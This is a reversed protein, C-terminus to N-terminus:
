WGARGTVAKWAGAPANAVAPADLAPLAVLLPVGQVYGMTTALSRHGVAARVSNPDAGAALAQVIRCRRFDHSKVVVPLGRSARRLIERVSSRAPPYSRDPWFLLSDMGGPVPVPLPISTRVTRVSAPRKPRWLARLGGRCPDLTLRDQGCDPAQDPSVVPGVHHPEIRLETETPGVKRVQAGTLYAIEAWRAGTDLLLACLTRYPEPCARICTQLEELSPKRM